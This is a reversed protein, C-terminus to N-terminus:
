ATQYAAQMAAPIREIIDSAIIPKGTNRMTSRLWAHLAPQPQHPNCPPYVVGHSRDAGSALRGAFGHWHAGAAALIPMLHAFDVAYQADARYEPTSHRAIWESASACIAGTLGALVDGSGATAMWSCANDAVIVTPEQDRPGGVIVTHAGKLLVTAGTTQWLQLASAVPHNLVDHVSIPTLQASSQPQLTNLLRACEAAHPTVITHSLQQTHPDILDLAGADIIMPRIPQAMYSPEVPLQEAPMQETHSQQAEHNPQNLACYEQLLTAIAQRQQESGGSNQSHRSDPVGSGVVWASATGSGLVAEPVQALLMARVHEPGCYRVMGVGARSAARVSLLAAGPYAVSGTVLGAVGRSYKSDDFRAPNMCWHAVLDAHVVSPDSLTLDFDLDTVIIDGCVYAAPPLLHCPKLVGCAVTLTADLIPGDCSGDDVGVGSPTDVALVAPFHQATYQAERLQQVLNGTVGRLSGKIGIGALADIIVDADCITTLVQAIDQDTHLTICDCGAQQAAALGQAHPADSTCVLTVTAGLTRLESAAFLGDGGNNGGGIAAIIHAQELRIGRSQLLAVASQAICHAAQAMLPRGAELLPQEMARVHKVNWAAHTLLMDTNSASQDTNAINGANRYQSSPVGAYLRQYAARAASFSM